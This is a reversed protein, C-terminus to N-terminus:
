FNAFRAELARIQFCCPVYWFPAPSWSWSVVARMLPNLTSLRLRISWRRFLFTRNTVPNTLILLVQGSVFCTYLHRTWDVYRWSRLSLPLVKFPSPRSPSCLITASCIDWPQWNWKRGKDFGFRCLFLLNLSCLMRLSRRPETPQHWLHQLLVSRVTRNTKPQRTLDQSNMIISSYWGDMTETTRSRNGPTLLLICPFLWMGAVARFDLISLFM